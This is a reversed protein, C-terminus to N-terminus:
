DDRGVEGDYKTFIARVHDALLNRLVLDSSSLRTKQNLQGDRAAMVIAALVHQVDVPLETIEELQIALDFLVDALVPDVTAQGKPSVSIGPIIQQDGLDDMSLEGDLVTDASGGSSPLRMETQCRNLAKSDLKCRHFIIIALLLRVIELFQNKSLTAGGKVVLM